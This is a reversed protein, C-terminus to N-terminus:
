NLHLSGPVWAVERGRSGQAECTADTQCSSKGQNSAAAGTGFLEEGGRDVAMAVPM